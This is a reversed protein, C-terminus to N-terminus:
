SKLKGASLQLAHRESVLDFYNFLVVFLGVTGRDSADSCGVIARQGHEDVETFMLQQVDANQKYYSPWLKTSRAKLSCVADEHSNWTTGSWTTAHLVTGDLAFVYRRAESNELSTTTYAVHQRKIAIKQSFV